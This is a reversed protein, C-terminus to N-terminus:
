LQQSVEIFIDSSDTSARMVFRESDTLANAACNMIAILASHIEVMAEFQIFHPPLCTFLAGLKDLVNLIQCFKSGLTELDINLLLLSVSLSSKTSEVIIESLSRIQKTSEL